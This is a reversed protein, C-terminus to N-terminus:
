PAGILAGTDQTVALAYEDAPWDWTGANFMLIFVPWREGSGLEAPVTHDRFYSDLPQEGWQAAAQDIYRGQAPCVACHDARFYLLTPRGAAPAPQMRRLHRQRLLVTVGTALASLALVLVLRELM